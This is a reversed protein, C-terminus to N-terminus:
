TSSFKSGRVPRGVLREYEREPTGYAGGALEELRERDFIHINGRTAKIIGFGEIIHIANTVGSRRVGLMLSLFEHTLLVDDGEIRDHCMLLWRALRENMNFRGNALASHSLQIEYSHTYRLLLDRMRTDAYMTTQFDSTPVRLGHGAIQMFIRNPTQDTAMLLPTGTMGDWGVHGVEVSEGDTSTAVISALGSEIFHVHEIPKDRHVLVTKLPLDVPELHPQLRAFSETSLAALLRNNVFSQEISSM